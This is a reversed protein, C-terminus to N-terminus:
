WETIPQNKYTGFQEGRRLLNLVAIVTSKEYQEFNYYDWAKM